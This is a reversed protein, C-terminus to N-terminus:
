NSEFLVCVCVCVGFGACVCVYVIETDLVNDITTDLKIDHTYVCHGQSEFGQRCADGVVGLGIIGINM